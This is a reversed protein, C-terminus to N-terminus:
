RVADDPTPTAEGATEPSGAVSRGASRRKLSHGTLLGVMFVGISVAGLAFLVDGPTRLWRLVTLVPQYLFEDSRAWWLGETISAWAQALGLPLLSLLSMALLGLNLGWFGWKIFRERWEAGPMLSRVCFLMLGIGLMGYVGFLATHGHLPTLNLGQVYFLSIPPNILFGFVGAGLANWFSVSIFFYIAWRYGAVWKRTRLLKLHRFAEFGILALPVVELASFVASLAMVVDNAGTFYLHHGTGIIGGFLFIVTSSLAATAATSSRLLGLRTFLFGIVVTAFVEFFGEVWLHVVWWRWYETISLHTDHGMGFAAGFFSAIALCAILLMIVLTRQSGMALPADERPSLPKAGARRIAPWMGRAMLFFWLFLGIFLAIQWLRGLDLYEMGTTGLWWSLESGPTMRGTISLWEGAMSGVVVLLLAAFLVNVGLRQYKPERGGVAPTIYLGTALWATAIWLIGLQTHWTRVVAYPLIRDIPIGYLAGGEVGYHASLIGMAIQLVFLGGVAFFYKLTAKQSPTPRYGLLPDDEPTDLLDEDEEGDNRQHYYVMGAIGGLLLIFSIISWLINPASPVNDILPEHPWNQTYTVDKGPADTSAAWASWWFFDALLDQDAPDVLTGEPIAYREHGEAFIGAYHDRLRDFAAVRAAPLTITDTAEDYTNTRMVQKLRAKLAAQGPADAEAYAGPGGALDDLILESERHLWDATWDPAVYAGHGWVSGIQQGGMSQWVRQGDMIDEGTMLVQGSEDVVRDPIPPKSVNIQQGMFLLTAFSAAVTVILAIWWRRDRRSIAGPAGRDARTRAHTSM